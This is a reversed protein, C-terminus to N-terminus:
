PGCLVCMQEYATKIFGSPYYLGVPGHSDASLEAHTLCHACDTYEADWHCGEVCCNPDFKPHDILPGNPTEGARHLLWWREEGSAARIKADM